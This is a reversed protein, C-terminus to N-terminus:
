RNPALMRRVAAAFGEATIPKLLFVEVGMSRLHQWERAGGSGTVVAVGCEPTHNALHLRQVLDSGGMVPMSLDTILLDPVGDARIQNWAERGDSAEVVRIGEVARRLWHVLLSRHDPDDDVLMATRNTRAHQEPAFAARLSQVLEKPTAPRRRPDKALAARLVEDVRTPLDPRLTSGDAPIQEVQARMTGEAGEGTVPLRGTLLEFLLIGLAYVDIRPALEPVVHGEVLEPAIFAPTGCVVGRDHAPAAAPRSLGLDAVAVRQDRTILVNSPKLDRHILKADHLANLGGAIQEAIDLVTAIDPHESQELMWTRLDQGEVHEMAFYPVGSARGLSYVQVVNDHRVGALMQAELEFQHVLGAVELQEPRMVKIAVSRRLGTDFAQYVIGMSGQGVRDGIRYRGDILEGKAFVDDPGHTPLGHEPITERENQSRDVM